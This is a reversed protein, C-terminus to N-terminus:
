IFTGHGLLAIACAKIREETVIQYVGECLYLSYEGIADFDAFSFRAMGNEYDNNWFANWNNASIPDVVDRIDRLPAVVSERVHFLGVNLVYEIVPPPPSRDLLEELKWYDLQRQCFIDEVYEEDDSEDSSSLSADSYWEM